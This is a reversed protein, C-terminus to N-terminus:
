LRHRLLSIFKQANMEMLSHKLIWDRNVAAFKTRYEAVHSLLHDLDKRLNEATFPACIWGNEGHVILERNAPIDNVLPIAGVYRGEALAASYGDYFPASIFIDVLNWLAHVEERPLANPIFKFNPYSKSLFEAQISVEPSVNYGAGLLIFCTDSRGQKLLQAFADLIIDAQYVPKAGRPSLVVKQGSQIGFRVKLAQLQQETTEFLSPEVGWPLATMKDRAVGFWEAMCDVLYQNDGTILDAFALAKAVQKRYFQQKRRARWRALVNSTNGTADWSRGAQLPNVAGKPPYEFIDAGFACAVTPHFGSQMAWVGFPTINLPNLIDIRNATLAKRLVTGGRLYDLYSYKGPSGVPPALQLTEFESHTTKEYSMVVVEAGARQLALAWKRTHFNNPDSLVAIRMECGLYPIKPDAYRFLRNGGKSTSIGQM